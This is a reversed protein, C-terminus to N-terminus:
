PRPPGAAIRAHIADLGGLWDSVIEHWWTAGAEEFAAVRDAAAAPDDGPTTGQAVFAYPADVDFGLSARLERVRAVDRAFAEIPLVGDEAAPVFGDWRAARRLPADPGPRLAAVWVPIRPEQLPRPLFTATGVQYHEGDFSFPEGGWLGGLIALSEDVMAARRRLDVEDGFTGFEAESPWGLGIGFILRGESLRDLSVTERALKWPRRRPLAAVMPGLRVRHTAQAIAAMAIWPDAIELTWTADVLIHDWVFFGDWGADEARVALDVLTRPDGGTGFNPIVIAHQM